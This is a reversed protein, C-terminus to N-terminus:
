HGYKEWDESSPPKNGIKHIDANFRKWLSSIIVFNELQSTTLATSIGVVSILDIEVFQFSNNV